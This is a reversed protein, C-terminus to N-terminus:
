AGVGVELRAQRVVALVVPAPNFWEGTIRDAFLVKHLHREVVRGGVALGVLRLPRPSGTQLSKLRDSPRRACGVKVRGDDSQVFYVLRPEELRVARRRLADEIHSPLADFLQFMETM